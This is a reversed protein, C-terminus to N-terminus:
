LKERILKIFEEMIIKVSVQKNFLNEAGSKAINEKKIFNLLGEFLSEFLDEGTVSTIFDGLSVDLIFISYCFEKAQETTIKSLRSNIKKIFFM